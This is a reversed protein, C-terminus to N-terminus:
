QEFSIQMQEASGFQSPVGDGQHRRSGISSCPRHGGRRGNRRTSTPAFQRAGHVPFRHGVAAVSECLRSGASRQSALLNEAKSIGRQLGQLHARHMRSRESDERRYRQKAVTGALNWRETHDRYAHAVVFGGHQNRQTKFSHCRRAFLLKFFFLM